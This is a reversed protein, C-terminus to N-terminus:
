KTYKNLYEVENLFSLLSEAINLREQGYSSRSQERCIRRYEGVCWKLDNFENESLTQDKFTYNM